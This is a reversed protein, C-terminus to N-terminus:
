SAILPPPKPSVCGFMHMSMFYSEETAYTTHANVHEWIEDYVDEEKEKKKKKSISPWCALALACSATSWRAFLSDVAPLRVAM